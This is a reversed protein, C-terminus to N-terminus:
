RKKKPAPSKVTEDESDSDEEPEDIIADDGMEDEDMSIEDEDIVDVELDEIAEIEDLEDIEELVDESDIPEIYEFDDADATLKSPKKKKNAADQKAKNKILPDDSDVQVVTKTKRRIKVPANIDNMKKCKPCAAPNVGLDYFKASCQTCIRKNGLITTTV